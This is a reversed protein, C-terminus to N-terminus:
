REPDRGVDGDGVGARRPHASQRIRRTGGPTDSKRGERALNGVFEEFKCCCNCRDKEIMVEMEDRLESL